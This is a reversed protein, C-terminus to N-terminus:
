AGDGARLLVKGSAGKAAVRFAEDVRSLPFVDTVIDGVPIRTLLEVARAYTGEIGFAGRITLERVFVDFPSVPVRADASAVGVVVVTGGPAAAAIGDELVRALGAAEFVVDAGRGETADRAWGVVDDAVPDVVTAGAAQARARRAPDPESVLLRTVGALPLLHALILGIPGAGLVLASSGSRVEARDIARLACATPEALAGHELSVSDPLLALLGPLVDMRDTWGAPASRSSRCMTPSGYRCYRCAGCSMCPMVSVRQGVEVGEVRRGVESVVGAQEHGMRIPGPLVHEGQIAHLDSGCIGAFAVDVRVLDPDLPPLDEVAVRVEGDPHLEVFRNSKSM